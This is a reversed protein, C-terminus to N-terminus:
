GRPPFFSPVNHFVWECIGHPPSPEFFIHGSTRDEQRQFVRVQGPVDEMEQAAERCIGQLRARQRPSLGKWLSLVNASLSRAM